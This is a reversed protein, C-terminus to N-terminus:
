KASVIRYQSNAEECTKQAAAKDTLDPNNTKDVVYSLIFECESKSLKLESKYKASQNEFFTFLQNSNLFESASLKKIQVSMDQMFLVIWKAVELKAQQVPIKQAEARVTALQKLFRAHPTGIFYAYTQLDSVAKDQTTNALVESIKNKIDQDTKYFGIQDESLELVRDSQYEPLSWRMFKPDETYMWGWYDALGENLGRLYTENFLGSIDEASLTKQTKMLQLTKFNESIVTSDGHISASMRFLKQASIGVQIVMKYFLSHFHEHAIIGANMAIPLEDKTYPVFMMSDTEGNYFANNRKVGAKSGDVVQTELGISRPWQNINEAGALQDLGALKQMHYYITAMQSTLLDMPIFISNAKVFQARPSVGTLHGSESGPQYYFQAFHGSVNKLDSIGTLQVVQMQYNESSNQLPVEVAVDGQAEQIDSRKTCSFLSLSMAILIFNRM